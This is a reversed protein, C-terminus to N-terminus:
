SVRRRGGALAAVGIMLLAITSPEPVAGGGGGGGPSPQGFREFWEAYDTDDNDSDGDADGTGQTAGSALPNFKRWVVYDAADIVGDDNFDANVAPPAPPNLQLLVNDFYASTSANSLGSGLVVTDWNRLAGVTMSVTESLINDVYFNYDIFLNANLTMEVKLNHWGLSRLPADPYDNLKFYAGSGGVSEAPGGEPDPVATPNYGLIRAMYRNGGSNGATQNNHLGMSILQNTATPAVHAGEDTIQDHLNAHNRSPSAAPASDYFDFSWVIKDTLESFGVQPDISRMNRQQANTLTGAQFVSNPPSDAQDQVLTADSTVSGFEYRPWAALFAAQDPAGVGDVYSDFNDSLLDVARATSVGTLLLSAAVLFTCVKM